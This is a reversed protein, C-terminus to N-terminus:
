GDPRRRDCLLKYGPFVERQRTQQARLLEGLAACDSVRMKLLRRAFQANQLFPYM